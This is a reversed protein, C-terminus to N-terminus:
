AAAFPPTIPRVMDLAFYNAVRPTVQLATQGPKMSDSM